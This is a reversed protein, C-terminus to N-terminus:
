MSCSSSACRHPFGQMQLAGHRCLQACLGCGECSSNSGGAVYRKVINCFAQEMCAGCGKCQSSDFVVQRQGTYGGADPEAVPASLGEGIDHFRKYGHLLAETAIQITRAGLRLLEAAESGSTVGGGACVQFGADALVATYQRTLGFMWNGFVSLGKGTLNAGHPKPARVSDLLSVYKVGAKKLLEAAYAEPLNKSLKPMVPVTCETLLTKLLYVFGRNFGDEAMLNPFYFFDLQVGHAGAKELKKCSELWIEPELTTETISPVIILGTRSVAAKTLSAAEELPLIERDFGSECWFLGREEDALCRRKGGDHLRRSSASKLIAAAAGNKECEAINEISETLPSSAAVMYSKVKYGLFDM